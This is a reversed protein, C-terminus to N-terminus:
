SKEKLIINKVKLRGNICENISVYLISTLLSAVFALIGRLLFDDGFLNGIIKIFIPHLIYIYLSYKQGCLSILNPKDRTINKFILFIVLALPITCFYVDAIHNAELYNIELLALLTFAVSLIVLYHMPIEVKKTAIYAGIAIMPIATFIFNRFCYVLTLYKPVNNCIHWFDFSFYVVLGAAAIYFLFIEKGIRSLIAIITLAYAYATLYWLHGAIPENNAFVFLCIDKFNPSYFADHRIWYWIFYIFLAWCFIRTIRIANKKMRERTVEGSFLLYGSIMFFLPVACTTIPMLFDHYKSPTHHLVIVLALIFKLIDFSYNRCRIKNSNQVTEDSKSMKLDKSNVFLGDNMKYNDRILM